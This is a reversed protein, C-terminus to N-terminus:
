KAFRIPLGAWFEAVKIELSTKSGLSLWTLNKALPIYINHIAARRFPHCRHEAEMCCTGKRSGAPVAFSNEELDGLMTAQYGAGNGLGRQLLNTVTLTCAPAIGHGTERGELSLDLSGSM